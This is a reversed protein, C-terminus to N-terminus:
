EESVFGVEADQAHHAQHTFWDAPLPKQDVLDITMRKPAPDGQLHIDTFEIRLLLGTQADAWLGINKPGPIDRSLKRADLHRRSGVPNQNDAADEVYTVRYHDRIHLLTEKLDLSLIEALEPPMPIRFAGPNESVVVPKNPRVMWRTQGDSGNVLTKGSPTRRFLVFKDSGRLYLTAGDLGAREPTQPGPQGPASDPRMDRVTISYTRDAASDIAAIMRDVAAAASNTPLQWYLIACSIVVMAAVGYRLLPRVFKHLRNSITPHEGASTNIREMVTRVQCEKGVEDRDALHLLLSHVLQLDAMRRVQARNLSKRMNGSSAMARSEGPDPDFWQSTLEDVVDRESNNPETTM